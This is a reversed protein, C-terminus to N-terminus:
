VHQSGQHVQVWARLEVCARRLDEITAPPVGNGERDALTEWLRELPALGLIRAGGLLRHAHSSAAPGDLPERELLDITQEAGDLYERVLDITLESGIDAELADVASQDVPSSESSAPGAITAGDARPAYRHLVSALLQTRVPKELFDDMGARRCRARQRASVDATMALIAPRHGRREHRRIAAAAALGDTDAMQCDMLIVDYHRGAAAAIAEKGSNATDVAFGLREVQLQTVHRNSPDDDAILVRRTGSAPAAALTHRTVLEHHEDVDASIARAAVARTCRLLEAHGFPRSVYGDYGADRAERARGRV